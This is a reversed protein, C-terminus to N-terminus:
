SRKERSLEHCMCHPGAGAQTFQTICPEIVKLGLSRLQENIKNGQFSMVRNHGLPMLNLYCKGIVENGPFDVFDIGKGRLFGLFYEPLAASTGIALEENLLTFIMDLHNWKAHFEVPLVEIDYKMLIKSAEAVGTHTTRNGVGVALTHDDIFWCDGGEFAGKEIQGIIPINNDKFYKLANVEEGKREFYRFRGILAGAKTMIGWDRAVSQWPQKENTEVWEVEVGNEQFAQTFEKHQEIARERSVEVGYDQANRAIDSVPIVEWHEPKGLLVKKLVGVSNPVM